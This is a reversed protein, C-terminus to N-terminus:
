RKTLFSRLAFLLEIVVGIAVVFVQPNQKLDNWSTWPVVIVFVAFLLLNALLCVGATMRDEPRAIRLLNLLAGFIMALAGCFFWVAEITLSKHVLFTGAGHVCGLLLLLWAFVQDIRKM